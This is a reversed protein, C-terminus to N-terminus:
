GRVRPLFFGLVDMLPHVATEDEMVWGCPFIGNAVERTQVFGRRSGVECCLGVWRGRMYRHSVGGALEAVCATGAGHSRRVDVEALELTIQVCGEV